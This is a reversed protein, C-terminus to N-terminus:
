AEQKPREEPLLPYLRWRAAIYTLAVTQFVNLVNNAIEIIIEGNM